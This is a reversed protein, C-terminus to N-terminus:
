QAAIGNIKKAPVHALRPRQYFSEGFFDSRSDAGIAEILDIEVQATNILTQAVECIAKARQVEMPQEKDGLAELAAFLHDRLDTMKNRPM